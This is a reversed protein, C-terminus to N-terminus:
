GIKDTRELKPEYLRLLIGDYPEEIAFVEVLVEGREGEKLWGKRRMFEIPIGVRGGKDIKRVAGLTKM